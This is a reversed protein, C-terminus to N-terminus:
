IITVFNSVHIIQMFIFFQCRLLTITLNLNCYQQPWLLMLWTLKGQWLCFMTQCKLAHLMYKCDFNITANQLQTNSYKVTQQSNESSHLPIRMMLDNSLPWYTQYDGIIKWMVTWQLFHNLIMLESHLDYPLQFLVLVYDLCILPLVCCPHCIQSAVIESWGNSWWRETTHVKDWPPRLRDLPPATSPYLIVSKSPPRILNWDDPFCKEWGNRGAVVQSPKLGKFPGEVKVRENCWSSSLFVAM